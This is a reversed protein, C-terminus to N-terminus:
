LIDEKTFSIIKNRMDRVFTYLFPYRTITKIYLNTDRTINTIPTSVGSIGDKGDRGRPGEGTIYTNITLGSNITANIELEVDFSNNDIDSM